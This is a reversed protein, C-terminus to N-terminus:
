FMWYLTGRFVVVESVLFGVVLEEVERFVGEVSSGGGFWVEGYLYLYLFFGVKFDGFVASLVRLVLFGGRCIGRDGIRVRVISFTWYM